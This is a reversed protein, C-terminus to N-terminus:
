ILDRFQAEAFGAPRSTIIVCLSAGRPTVVAERLTPCNGRTRAAVGVSALPLNRHTVLTRGDPAVHHAGDAPRSVPTGCTVLALLWTGITM